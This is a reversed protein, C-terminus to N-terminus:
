VGAFFPGPPITEGSVKPQTVQRVPVKTPPGPVIPIIKLLSPFTIKSQSLNGHPKKPKPHLSSLVKQSFKRKLAGGKAGQKNDFIIPVFHDIPQFVNGPEVVGHYCFLVHM